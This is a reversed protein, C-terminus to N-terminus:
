ARRAPHNVYEALDAAAADWDVEAKRALVVLEDVEDVIDYYVLVRGYAGVRPPWDHILVVSGADIHWLAKLAVAVRFRGDVLVVDVIPSPSSATQPPSSPSSPLPLPTPPLASSANTPPGGADKSDSSVDVSAGGMGLREIANVYDPFRANDAPNTPVGWM